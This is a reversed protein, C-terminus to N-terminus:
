SDVRRLITRGATARRAVARRAVAGSVPRSGDPCSGGSGRVAFPETMRRATAARYAPQSPSASAQAEPPAEPPLPLPPPSPPPHPAPPPPPSPASAPAPAAPVTAGVPTASPASESPRAASKPWVPPPPPPPLSGVLAASSAASVRWCCMLTHASRPTCAHQCTPMHVAYASRTRQGCMLPAAAVRHAGAAAQLRCGYRCARQACTSSSSPTSTRWRCRKVSPVQWAHACTGASLIRTHALLLRSCARAASPREM